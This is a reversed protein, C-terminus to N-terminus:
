PVIIIYLLCFLYFFRHNHDEECFFFRFYSRQGSLFGPFFFIFYFQSISVIRNEEKGFGCFGLDIIKIKMVKGVTERFGFLSLTELCVNAVSIVDLFCYSNQPKLFVQFSIQLILLVRSHKFRHDCVTLFSCFESLIKYLHRGNYFYIKIESFSFYFLFLCIYPTIRFKCPYLFIIFIKLRDCPKDM